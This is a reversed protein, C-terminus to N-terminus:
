NIKTYKTVNDVDIFSEYYEIGPTTYLFKGTVIDRYHDYNKQDLKLGILDTLKKFNEWYVPVSDLQVHFKSVDVPELEVLSINKQNFEVLNKLSYSIWSKISDQPKLLIKINKEDPLTNKLLCDHSTIILYQDDSNAIKLQEENLLDITNIRSGTNGLTPAWFKPQSNVYRHIRWHKNNDLPVVNSAQELLNAFGDGGAGPPFFVWVIM